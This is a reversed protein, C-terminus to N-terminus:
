MNELGCRSRQHGLCAPASLFMALARRGSLGDQMLLHACTKVDLNHHDTRVQYVSGGLLFGGAVPLFFAPTAPRFPLVFFVFTLVVHRWVFVTNKLGRFAIGYAGANGEGADV